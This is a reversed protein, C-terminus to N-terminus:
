FMGNRKTTSFEFVFLPMEMVAPLTCPVQAWALVRRNGHIREESPARKQRRFRWQTRPFVFFSAPSFQVTDGTIVCTCHFTIQRPQEVPLVIKNMQNLMREEGINEDHYYVRWLSSTRGTEDRNMHLVVNGSAM